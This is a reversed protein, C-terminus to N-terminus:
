RYCLRASGRRDARALLRRRWFVGEAVMIAFGIAAISPESRALQLAPNVPLM